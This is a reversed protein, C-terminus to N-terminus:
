NRTDNIKEMKKVVTYAIYKAGTYGQSGKCCIRTAVGMSLLAARHTKSIVDGDWIPGDMLQRLQATLEKPFILAIAHAIEFYNHIDTEALIVLEGIIKHLHM